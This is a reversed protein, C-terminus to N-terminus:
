GHINQYKINLIYTYPRVGIDQIDFILVDVTKLMEETPRRTKGHLSFVPIEKYVGPKVEKGAHVKGDIGHEPAFLAALRGQFRKVTSQLESDVGTQNTILGIRKGEISQIHGEKFFRDVGLELSSLFFPVLFFLLRLM